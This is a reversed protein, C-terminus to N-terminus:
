VNSEKIHVNVPYAWVHNHIEQYEWSIHKTQESQERIFTNFVSSQDGTKAMLEGMYVLLTSLFLNQSFKEPVRM